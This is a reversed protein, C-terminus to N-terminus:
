QLDASLFCSVHTYPRSLCPVLLLLQSATCLACRATDDLLLLDQLGLAALAVLLATLQHPRMAPLRQRTAKRLAALLPPAALGATACQCYAHVLDQCDLM